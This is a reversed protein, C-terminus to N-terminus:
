AKPWIFVPVIKGEVWRAMGVLLGDEERVWLAQAGQWDPGSASLLDKLPLAQGNRYRVLQEGHLDIGPLPLFQDPRLARLRGLCEPVGLDKGLRGKWEGMRVCQGLHVPGVSERVLAALAGVTGMGEMCDTFLTRVYTGTSVSTRFLVYPWRYRLVELSLVERAVAEKQVQIGKLALKYLPVGQHKAASFSPPAQMYTGLVRARMESELEERSMGRVRELARPDGAEPLAERTLDGTATKIGIKGLALYTKPLWAHAQETMRTAGGVGVLLVGCAFPDLTGFHGIKGIDRPLERKLANLLDASSPGPPKYLNIIAPIGPAPASKKNKRAQTGDTM